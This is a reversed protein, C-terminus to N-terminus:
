VFLSAAWLAAGAHNAATFAYQNLGWIGYYALGQDGTNTTCLQSLAMALPAVPAGPNDSGILVGDIYLSMTSVSAVYSWAVFKWGTTRTFAVVYTQGAFADLMTVRLGSTATTNPWSASRTQVVPSSTLSWDTGAGVTVTTRNRYCYGTFDVDGNMSTFLPADTRAMNYATGVTSPREAVTHGPKETTNAIFRSLATGQTWTATGPSVRTPLSSIKGAVVTADNTVIQYVPNSLTLPDVPTAALNQMGLLMAVAPSPAMARIGRARARTQDVLQM